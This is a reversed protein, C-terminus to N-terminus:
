YYWFYFIACLFMIIYPPLCICKLSQKIAPKPWLYYYIFVPVFLSSACTSFAIFYGGEYEFYGGFYLWYVGFLSVASLVALLTSFGILGWSKPALTDMRYKFRQERQAYLAFCVPPLVRYRKVDWHGCAV